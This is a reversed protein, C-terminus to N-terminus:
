PDVQVSPDLTGGAKVTYKYTQGVTGNTVAGSADNNPGFYDSAFPSGDEFIVAWDKAGQCRWVVEDKHDKSVHTLDLDVQPPHGAAITVTIIRYGRKRETGHTTM